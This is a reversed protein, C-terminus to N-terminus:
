WPPAALQLGMESEAIQSSGSSYYYEGLSYVGAAMSAVIWVLVARKATPYDRIV